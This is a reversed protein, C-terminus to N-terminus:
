KSLAMLKDGVIEGGNVSLFDVAARLFFYFSLNWGPGAVIGSPETLIDRLLVSAVAYSSQTPSSSELESAMGRFSFSAPRIRLSYFISNVSGSLANLGGSLSNLAHLTKLM